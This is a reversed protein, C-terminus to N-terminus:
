TRVNHLSLTGTTWYSNRHILSIDGTNRFVPARVRTDTVFRKEIVACKMEFNRVCWGTIVIAGLV